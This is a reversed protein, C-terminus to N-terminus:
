LLIAAQEFLVVLPAHERDDVMEGEYVLIAVHGGGDLPRCNLPQAILLANRVVLGGGLAV